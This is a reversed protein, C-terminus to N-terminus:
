ERTQRVLLVCITAKANARTHPRIEDRANRSEKQAFSPALLEKRSPIEIHLRAEEVNVVRRPQQQMEKRGKNVGVVKEEAQQKEIIKGPFGNVKKESNGARKRSQASLAGGEYVENKTIAQM